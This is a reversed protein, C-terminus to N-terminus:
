VDDMRPGESWLVDYRRVYYDVFMTLVSHDRVKTSPNLESEKQFALAEGKVFHIYCMYTDVLRQKGEKTIGRVMSKIFDVWKEDRVTKNLIPVNGDDPDISWNEIFVIDNKERFEKMIKRIDKVYNKFSGIDRYFFSVKLECEGYCNMFHNRMCAENESDNNRQENAFQHNLCLKIGILYFVSLSVTKNSVTNTGIQVKNKGAIM